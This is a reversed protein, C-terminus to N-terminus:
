FLFFTRFDWTGRDKPDRLGQSIKLQFHQIVKSFTSPNPHFKYRLAKASDYIGAACSSKNVNSQPVLERQAQPM